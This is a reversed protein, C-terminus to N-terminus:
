PNYYPPSSPLVDFIVNNTNKNGSHFVIFHFFDIKRVTNVVGSFKIHMRMKVMLLCVIYSLIFHYIM